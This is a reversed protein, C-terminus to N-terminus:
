LNIKGNIFSIVKAYRNPQLLIEDVLKKDMDGIKTNWDVMKASDNILRNTTYLRTEPSDMSVLSVLFPHRSTSGQFLKYEKQLDIKCASDFVFM